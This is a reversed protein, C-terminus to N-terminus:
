INRLYKDRQRILNLIEYKAPCGLHQGRNLEFRRILHWMILLQYCHQNDWANDINDCSFVDSWDIDDLNQLFQDNNYYKFCRMQLTNHKNVPTRNVKRTCYTILHDSINVSLVGSQCVKEHDTVLILDITSESNNCVRTPESILQKFGYHM